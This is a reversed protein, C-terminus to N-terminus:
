SMSGEPTCRLRIRTISVRFAFSVDRSTCEGDTHASGEGSTAEEDLEDQFEQLWKQTVEGEGEEDDDGSGAERPVSPGGGSQLPVRGVIDDIYAGGGEGKGGGVEEEEEAEEESDTSWLKSSDGLLDDVDGSAEHREDFRRSMEEADGIDNESEVPGETTSVVGSDGDIAYTPSGSLALILALAAFPHDLRRGGDFADAAEKASMPIEFGEVRM